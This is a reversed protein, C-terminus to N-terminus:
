LAPYGAVSAHPPFVPTLTHARAYMSAVASRTLVVAPFGVAYAALVAGARAAAAADVAGRRFLAAMILDPLILFAIAFPAALAITFGLARNQAGHAGAVDGAALRLSM